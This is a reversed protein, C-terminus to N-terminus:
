VLRVLGRKARSKHDNAGVVPSAGIPGIRSDGVISSVGIHGIRSAGVNSSAGLHGILSAFFKSFFMRLIAM